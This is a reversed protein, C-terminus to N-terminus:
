YNQESEHGLYDKSDVTIVAAILRSPNSQDVSRSQEEVLSSQTIATASLGKLKPDYQVESHLVAMKM